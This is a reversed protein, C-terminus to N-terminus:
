AAIRHAMISKFDVGLGLSELVSQFTQEPTKDIVKFREKEESMNIALHYIACLSSLYLRFKAEDASAFESARTNECLYALDSQSIKILHIVSRMGDRQEKTLISFCNETASELLLMTPPRPFIMEKVQEEKYIGKALKHVVCYNNHMLRIDNVCQVALDKLEIYLVDLQKESELSMKISEIKRTAAVTAVVGILTATVGMLFGGIDM